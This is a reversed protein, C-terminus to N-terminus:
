PIKYKLRQRARVREAGFMGKLDMVRGRERYPDAPPMWEDPVVGGGYVGYVGDEGVSWLVGREPDYGFPKAAFPDTPM